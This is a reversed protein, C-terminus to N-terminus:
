VMDVAEVMIVEVVLFKHELLLFDVWILWELFVGM